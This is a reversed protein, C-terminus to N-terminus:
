SILNINSLFIKFQKEIELMDLAGHIERTVLLREGEFIGYREYLAKRKEWDARYKDQEWLGLHEWYYEKGDIYFTFDPHILRGGMEIGKEYRFSIRHRKLFDGILMESKSRVFEGWLAYHLLQEPHAKQKAKEAAKKRKRERKRWKRYEKLVANEAYKLLTRLEHMLQRRFNLLFFMHPEDAKRIYKQVRRANEYYQHYYRIYGRIKKHVICGQPLKNLTMLIEWIRQM